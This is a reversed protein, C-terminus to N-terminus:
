NISRYGSNRFCLIIKRMLVIIFICLPIYLIFLFYFYDNNEKRAVVIAVIGSGISAGIILFSIAISAAYINIFSAIIAVAIHFGLWDSAGNYMSSVFFVAFAGIYLSSAAVRLPSIFPYGLREALKMNKFKTYDDSFQDKGLHSMVQEVTTDTKNKRIDSGKGKTQLESMLDRVVDVPLKSTWFQHVFFFMPMGILPMLYTFIMM